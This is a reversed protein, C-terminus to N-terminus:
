PCAGERIAGGPGQVSWVEDEVTAEMCYSAAAASKITVSDPVSRDYTERLLQATAGVYTSNDSFYAEISPITSRLAVQAQKAAGESATGHAAPPADAEGALEATTMRHLLDARSASGDAHTLVFDLQGDRLAITVHAEGGQELGLENFLAETQAFREGESQSRPGAVLYLSTGPPAEGRIQITDGVDFVSRSVIAQVLGPAEGIRATPNTTEVTLTWPEDFRHDKWAERLLAPNCIVLAGGWGSCKFPASSGNARLPTESLVPETAHAPGTTSAPGQSGMTVSPTAGGCASAALVLAAALLRALWGM